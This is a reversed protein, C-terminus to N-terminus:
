IERGNTLKAESASTSKQNEYRSTLTQRGSFSTTDQSKNIIFLVTGLYERYGKCNFIATIRCGAGRLGKLMSGTIINVAM